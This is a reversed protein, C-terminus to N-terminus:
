GSPSSDSDKMRQYVRFYACIILTVIWVIFARGMWDGIDGSGLIGFNEYIFQAVFKLPGGIFWLGIDNFVSGISSFLSIFFRVVTKLVFAELLCWVVFWVVTEMIIAQELAAGKGTRLSRYFM